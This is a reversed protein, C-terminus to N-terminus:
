LTVFRAPLVLCFLDEENWVPIDGYIGVLLPVEESRMQGEVAPFLNMKWCHACHDGPIDWSKGRPIASSQGHIAWLATLCCGEVQEGM